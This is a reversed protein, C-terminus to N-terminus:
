GGCPTWRTWGRPQINLSRARSKHRETWDGGVNRGAEYALIPPGTFTMKILPADPASSILQVNLWIDHREKTPATFKMERFPTSVVVSYQHLGPPLPNPDLVSRVGEIYAVRDLADTKLFCREAISFV